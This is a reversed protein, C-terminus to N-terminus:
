IKRLIKGTFRTFPLIKSHLGSLIFKFKWLPTSDNVKLRSINLLNKNSKNIKHDFLFAFQVGSERLKTETKDSSNGNPYAFYEPSFGLSTLIKNSQNLEKELEIDTCQDFMPHTHSHNGIVIGNEQIENLEETTLQPWELRPKVTNERLQLIYNERQKNPWTKVEWIKANGEKAGLYYLIEDWWFPKNTNILDTIVFVIAPVRYKKLIPLANVFISKDGDDFTLLVTDEKSQSIEKLETGLENPSIFRYKKQLYRIQDEFRSKDKVKHYALIKM